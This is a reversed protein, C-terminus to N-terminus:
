AVIPRSVQVQFPGRLEAKDGPERTLVGPLGTSLAQCPTYIARHAPCEPNWVRLAASGRELLLEDIKLM